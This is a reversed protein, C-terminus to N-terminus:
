TAGRQRGKGVRTFSFYNLQRRLSAFSAHNFYRPLVEAEVRVRDHVVIKGLMTQGNAHGLFLYLCFGNAVINSLESKSFSTRLKRGPYFSVVSENEQLM